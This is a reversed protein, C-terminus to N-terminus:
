VRGCVDQLGEQSLNASGSTKVRISRGVSEHIDNLRGLFDFRGLFFGGDRETGLDRFALADNAYGVDKGGEVVGKDVDGVQRALFGDGADGARIKTKALEMDLDLM